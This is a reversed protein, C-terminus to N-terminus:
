EPVEIIEIRTPEPAAPETVEPEGMTGLELGSDGLILVFDLAAPRALGDDEIMEPPPPPFPRAQNFARLVCGDIEGDGSGEVVDLAQLVGDADMAVQVVTRFRTASMIKDADLALVNKEWFPNIQRRVQDAYQQEASAPAPPESGATAEETADPAGDTSEAAISDVRDTPAGTVDPEASEGSGPDEPQETGPASGATGVGAEEMGIIAKDAWGASERALEVSTKYSSFSAEERAKALYAQAMTLEYEAHEAAGASQARRVAQQAQVM